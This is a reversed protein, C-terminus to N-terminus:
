QVRKELAIWPQTYGYDRLIRVWGQRGYVRVRTCSEDRAYQEVQALITEWHEVLSGGATTIVMIREDTDLMGCIETTMAAVITGNQSVVWLLSSGEDLKRKIYETSYDANSRIAAREIFRVVHPWLRDVVSPAVCLFQDM